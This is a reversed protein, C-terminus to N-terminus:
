RSDSFFLLLLHYIQEISFDDLKLIAYFHVHFFPELLKDLYFMNRQLM